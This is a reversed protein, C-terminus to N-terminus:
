IRLVLKEAGLRDVPVALVEVVFVPVEHDLLLQGLVPQELRAVRTTFSVMEKRLVRDIQDIGRGSRTRKGPETGEAQLGVVAVIVEVRPLGGDVPPKSM